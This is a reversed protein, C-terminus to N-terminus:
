IITAGPNLKGPTHPIRAGLGPILGVDGANSPLNKVVLAGPLDRLYVKSTAKRMTNGLPKDRVRKKKEDIVDEKSSSMLKQSKHQPNGCTQKVRKKREM